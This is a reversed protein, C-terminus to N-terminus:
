QLGRDMTRKADSNHHWTQTSAPICVLARNAPNVLVRPRPSFASQGITVQMVKQMSTCQIDPVTDVSEDDVDIIEPPM